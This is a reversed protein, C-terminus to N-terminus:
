SALAEAVRQQKEELLRVAEEREFLAAEIDAVRGDFQKVQAAFEEERQTIANSSKLLAAREAKQEARIKDANDVIKQVRAKESLLKEEALRATEFRKISEEMAAKAEAEMEAKAAVAARLENLRKKFPEGGKAILAVAVSFGEIVELTQETIELDETNM